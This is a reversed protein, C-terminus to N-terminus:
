HPSVLLHSMGGTQLVLEQGLQLAVAGLATTAQTDPNFTAFLDWPVQQDQTLLDQLDPLTSPSAAAGEPPIVSPHLTFTLDWSFSKTPHGASAPEPYAFVLAIQGDENAFGQGVQKGACTATLMAHRLQPQDQAARSRLHARVVALSPPAVCSHSAYLAVPEPLGSPSSSTGFPGLTPLQTHWSMPLYRGLQDRVEVVHDKAMAKATAWFAADGLGVDMQGMGPVRHLAYVGSSTRQAVAQLRPQKAPFLTVSLGECVPQRTAADIFRCGLLAVRTIRDPHKLGLTV